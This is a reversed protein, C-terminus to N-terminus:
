RRGGRVKDFWNPLPQRVGSAVLKYFTTFAQGENLLAYAKSPSTAVVADSQSVVSRLAGLVVICGRAAARAEAHKLRSRLAEQEPQSEAARVNPYGNDHSCTPCIRQSIDLIRPCESNRCKM